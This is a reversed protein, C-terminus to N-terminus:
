WKIARNINLEMNDKQLAMLVLSLVGSDLADATKEILDACRRGPKHMESLYFNAYYM